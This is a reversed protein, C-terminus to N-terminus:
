RGLEAAALMARGLTRCHLAAVHVRPAAISSTRQLAKNPWVASRGKM